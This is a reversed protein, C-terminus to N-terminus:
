NNNDCPRIEKVNLQLSTKGHFTNETLNYYIDFEGNQVVPLRDGLSFAIADIPDAPYQMSGVKFKLHKEKVRKANGEDRLYKTLFIPDPNGIGFPEFQKILRMLKTNIDSLNIELDVNDTPVFNDDSSETMIERVAQEFRKSFDEFNEEKITLGAASKHGGFHVLLDKCKSIARHIDFDNISRASGVLCDDSKTFVITPKYYQEIVRSAVIGIVGKHWADSNNKKVPVKYLVNSKKEVIDNKSLIQLAEVTAEKDLRRREENCENIQLAIEKAEDDNNATLIKVAIEGSRMRGAANLRPCITFVLDTLTIKKTFYLVQSHQSKIINAYSFLAVIGKRPHTNIQELGYYALIRNEGTVQVVDAAISLTVLDLYQLLDDFKGNRKEHLAQILKFGIGCGTLEQYPYNSDLCKPDLIAYAKPINNDPIHHDCIIFDIGKEAAYDVQEAAKIGCDLSIILSFNKEYAWDIAQLSVGYGEHYRDPIYFDVNAHYFDKLYSYVLSVACTGDVDYDGYVLIKDNNQVAKNIKEVSKQMDQMLYPDYLTQLQPRFFNKADEYTTIGRQCLLSSIIIYTNFEKSQKNCKNAALQEALQEANKKDYNSILVWNKDM